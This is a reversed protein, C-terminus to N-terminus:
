QANRLRAVAPRPRAVAPLVFTLIVAIGALVWLLTGGTLIATSLPDVKIYPAPLFAVGFALSFVSAQLLYSQPNVPAGTWNIFTSRRERQKSDLTGKSTHEAVETPHSMYALFGAALVIALGLFITPLIGRAPLANTTGVAFSFALVATYAGGIAGAATQV